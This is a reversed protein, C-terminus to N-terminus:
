GSFMACVNELSESGAPRCVREEDSCTLGPACESFDVCAEGDAAPDGCTEGRCAAHAGCDESYVCAEGPARPAVCTLSDRDCRLDDNLYCQGRQPADDGAGPVAQTCATVGEGEFCTELCPEGLAARVTVVCRQELMPGVFSCDVQGEAAPACDAPVRCAEGLAATGSFVGDCFLEETPACDGTSRRLTDLCREGADPDFRLGVYASGIGSFIERCGDESFSHGSASCCSSLGGCLFDTFEAFYAEVEPAAPGQGGASQGSGGGANGAGM